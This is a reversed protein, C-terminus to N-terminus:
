DGDLSVRALRMGVDFIKGNFPCQDVNRAACQEPTKTWSGGVLIRLPTGDINVAPDNCWEWVNGHMNFLGLPNAEFQTVASTRGLGENWGFNATQLYLSNTPQAFYFDFASDTKNSMPGGRCAYQWEPSTPLRYIWGTEKVRENLKAVFAQCDDWSVREVPYRKLDADPINIVADRGENGRSFWSPNEGMVKQWEEQTVEYKGLYFDAAIEVEKEGLRNKGGGLWSKGMPVLVFQMGLDNTFTARLKLEAEPIGDSAAAVEGKAAVGLVDNPAVASSSQKHFVHTLGSLEAVLLTLISFLVVAAAAFRKWRASGPAPKMGPIKSFDHARAHVKLLEECEAFLEAVDKASQYRQQPNKALLRTIIDCLWTPIGPVVEALPRPDQETVCKLVALTSTGQFPSEGSVIRYLVSGLSFLDTRHDLTQGLAQEPAMYMPTGVILGSQTMETDDAPRALGFDTIKVRETAGSELLINSPKIDRHILSQEHAAALGQAIQRGLRVTTQIDLPGDKLRQQLTQGPIYEMVLYPVPEEDVSYIAVVHEHRIAAAARAERLFRKRATSTSAMGPALVKIAVVRHLKEDFAKLVIGFGGRGLVERVEYHALRGLSDPKESPQLCSQLIEALDDDTNASTWKTSQAAAETKPFEDDETSDREFPLTASSVNSDNERHAEVSPELIQRKGDNLALLAEVRALLELDNGCAQRLLAQRKALDEVALASLFIERETM